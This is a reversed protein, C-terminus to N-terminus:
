HGIGKLQDILARGTDILGTKENTPDSRDGRLLTELDSIERRLRMLTDNPCVLNQTSPDVPILQADSGMPSGKTYLSLKVKKDGDPIEIQEPWSYDKGDKKEKSTVLFPEPLPQMAAMPGHPGNVVFVSWNFKPNDKQELLESVASKGGGLVRQLADKQENAAQSNAAFSMLMRNVDPSMLGIGKGVLYTGDFPITIEGLANVEKEPYQGDSITRKASTLTEALRDIVANAEDVENALIAAGELAIDQRKRREMGGGLAVGLIAGVVATAIAILIVKSRGKKQAQVVEESMEIKIAQPEARRPEEPAMSPTPKHAFAPAPISSGTTMPPPISAGGGGVTKKGLRARLDIKPKKQEEAM